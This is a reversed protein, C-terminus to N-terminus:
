LMATTTTEPLLGKLEVALFGIAVTQSTPNQTKTMLTLISAVCLFYIKYIYPIMPKIVLTIKKLSFIAIQRISLAM